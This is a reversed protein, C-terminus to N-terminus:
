IIIHRIAYVYYSSCSKKSYLFGHNFLIYQQQILMTNRLSALCIMRKLEVITRKIISQQAQVWNSRFSSFFRGADQEMGYLVPLETESAYHGKEQWLHQVDTKEVEKAEAAYDEVVGPLLFSFFLIIFGIYKM